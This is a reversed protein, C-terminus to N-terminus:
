RTTLYDYRLSSREPRNKSPAYKAMRVVDVSLTVLRASLTEFAPFNLNFLNPRLVM